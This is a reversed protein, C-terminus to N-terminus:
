KYLEDLDFVNIDQEAMASEVQQRTTGVFTDPRSLRVLVAMRYLDMDVPGYGQLIYKRTWVGYFISRGQCVPCWSM